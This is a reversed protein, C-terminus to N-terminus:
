QRSRTTEGSHIIRLSGMVTDALQRQQHSAGARELRTCSMFGKERFRVITMTLKLPADGHVAMTSDYTFGALGSLSIATEASPPSAGAVGLMQEAAVKLPGSFSGLSFVFSTASDASTVILNHDTDVERTWDDPIDAAFAPTGRAPHRIEHAAAQGALALVVVALALRGLLATM